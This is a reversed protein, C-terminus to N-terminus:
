QLLTEVLRFILKLVSFHADIKEQKTIIVKIHKATKSQKTIYFPKYNKPLLIMLQEIFIHPIWLM